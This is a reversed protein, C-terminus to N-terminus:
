SIWTMIAVLMTLKGDQYNYLVYWGSGALWDSVTGIYILLLHKDGDIAPRSLHTYGHANPNEERWKEWGGGGEEFYREFRGDADIIYGKSSASRLGLTAVKTNCKFLLDVLTDIEHGEERFKEKIYAKAKTIEDIDSSDFHSLATVPAVVTYGSDGFRHELVLLLAKDEEETTVEQAFSNLTAFCLVTFLLIRM